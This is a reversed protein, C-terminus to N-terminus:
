NKAQKDQQEQKHQLLHGIGFLLLGGLVTPLLVPLLSSFAPMPVDEATLPYVLSTLTYILGIIFSIFGIAKLLFPGIHYAGAKETRRRRTIDRSTFDLFVSLVAAGFATILVEPVMYLANYELSYLWAPMGEPAWMGWVAWGSIFHCAYRFIGAVVIGLSLEASQNGHFKGRFMGAFGQSAFAIMYDFLIICVVALFNTGYRLNDMGLIMQLLGYAAGSILGWRIGYRYAIIALPLISMVTVTGGMPMSLLKLESLVTGFAIMLASETLRLIGKQKATIEM